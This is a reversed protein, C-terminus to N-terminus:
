KPSEIHPSDFPARVSQPKGGRNYLKYAAIIQQSLVSNTGIIKRKHNNRRSAEVVGSASAPVAVFTETSKKFDQEIFTSSTQFWRYLDYENRTTDLFM